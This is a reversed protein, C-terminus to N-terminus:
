NLINKLFSKRHIPCIGEKKISIIHEKTLYGKNKKFNYKPYKKHLNDMYKDRSVKALISAAAISASKFDGKVIAQVDFNEKFDIKKNGDILVLIKKNETDKLQKLVKYISKKMALLSAQLINIKEIQEVEINTIGFFTQEQIKTFLEERTKESLKKSDNLKEFDEINFDNKFCVAAGFVGGAGPGRGAEDAGIIYDYSSIQLGLDGIKGKKLETDFEFRSNM